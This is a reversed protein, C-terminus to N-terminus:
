CSLVEVCVRTYCLRKIGKGHCVVFVGSVVDCGDCGLHKMADGHRRIYEVAGSANSFVIWQRGVTVGHQYGIVEVACEGHRMGCPHEYGYYTSTYAHAYYRGNYTKGDHGIVDSFICSIKSTNFEKCKMLDEILAASERPQNWNYGTFGLAKIWHVGCIMM